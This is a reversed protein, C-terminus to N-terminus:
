NLCYLSLVVQYNQANDHKTFYIALEKNKM